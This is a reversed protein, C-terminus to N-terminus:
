ENKCRKIFYVGFLIVAVLGCAILGIVLNSKFSSMPSSDDVFYIDVEGTVEETTGVDIEEENTEDIFELTGEELIIETPTGIRDSSTSSLIVGDAEIANGIKGSGEALIEANAIGVALLVMLILEFKM